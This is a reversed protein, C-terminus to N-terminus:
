QQICSRLADNLAKDFASIAGATDGADGNHDITTILEHGAEVADHLASGTEDNQKAGEQLNALYQPLQSDIRARAEVADGSWDWGEVKTAVKLPWTADDIQTKNSRIVACASGGTTGAPVPATSEPSVPTPTETTMTPTEATPVAPAPAPEPDAVALSSGLAGFMLAAAVVLGRSAKTGRM